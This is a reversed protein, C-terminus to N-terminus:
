NLMTSVGLRCSVGNGELRSQHHQEDLRVDLEWVQDAACLYEMMRSLKLFGSESPAFDDARSQELPGISIMLCREVESPAGYLVTDVGLTAAELAPASMNIGHVQRYAHDMTVPVGLVGSIADAMAPLSGTVRHIRPLLMLLKGVEKQNFERPPEWFGRVGRGTRDHLMEATLRREALEIQLRAFQLEYDLPVFFLRAAEEVEDNRRIEQIIEEPDVFPKSRRVAHFVGEPLLDYLGLRNLEMVARKPSWEMAGAPVIQKIDREAARRFGGSPWILVDMPDLQGSLALEALVVEARLDDAESRLRLDRSVWIDVEAVSM